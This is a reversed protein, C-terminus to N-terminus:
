ELTMQPDGADADLLLKNSICARLGVVSRSYSFRCKLLVGLLDTHVNINLLM